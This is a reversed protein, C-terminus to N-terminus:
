IRLVKRLIIEVIAEYRQKLKGLRELYKMMFIDGDASCPSTM